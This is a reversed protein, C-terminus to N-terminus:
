ILIRDFRSPLGANRRAPRNHIAVANKRQTEVTACEILRVDALRQSM